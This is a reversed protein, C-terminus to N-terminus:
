PVVGPAGPPGAGTSVENPKGGGLAGVGAGSVDVNVRERAECPEAITGPAAGM